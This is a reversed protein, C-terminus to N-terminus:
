PFLLQSKLALIQETAQLHCALKQVVGKAPGHPHATTQLQVRHNAHEVVLADVRDEM